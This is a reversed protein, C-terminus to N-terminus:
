VAFTAVELVELEGVLDLEDVMLVLCPERYGLDSLPGIRLDTFVRFEARM